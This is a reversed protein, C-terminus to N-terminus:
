SNHAHFLILLVPLTVPATIAVLPNVIFFRVASIEDNYIMDYTFLGYMTSISFLGYVDIFSVPKNKSSPGQTSLQRAIKIAASQRIFNM